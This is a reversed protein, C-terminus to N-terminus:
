FLIIKLNVEPLVKGSAMIDGKIANM